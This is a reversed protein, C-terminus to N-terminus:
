TTHWCLLPLVSLAPLSRVAPKLKCSIKFLKRLLSLVIPGIRRCKWCVKSEITDVTMGTKRFWLVKHIQKSPSNSLLYLISKTSPLSYDRM